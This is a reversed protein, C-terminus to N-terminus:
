RGVAAVSVPRRNAHTNPTNAWGAACLAEVVGQAHEAMPWATPPAPYDTAMQAIDDDSVWGARVWNPEPHGDDFEWACGPASVPIEECHAGRNWATQGLAADVQDADVMRLGIRYPILDRVPVTTKRPDQVAAIVHIGVARGQSLLLKLSRGIRERDAPSAYATLAALEDLVIVVAPSWRGPKHVRAKGSHRRARAAMLAAADDVLDAIGAPDRAFRAFMPCTPEGTRDDLPGHGFEMGGKPDCVWVQVWGGVVGASVSRIISWLVSAKGAGVAGVVLVHVVSALRLLWPKGDARRGIPLADLDPRAPPRLAAVVPLDRRRIFELRVWHRKPHSVRCELAGFTEALSPARQTWDQPHQGAPIRVLVADSAPLCTVRGLRPLVEDGAFRVALGLLWM